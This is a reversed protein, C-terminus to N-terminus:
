FLVLAAEIKLLGFNLGNWDNLCTVPGIQDVQGKISEGGEERKANEYKSKLAKREPFM